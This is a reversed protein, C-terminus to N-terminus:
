SHELAYILVVVMAQWDQYLVHIRINTEKIKKLTRSERGLTTQLNNSEEVGACM